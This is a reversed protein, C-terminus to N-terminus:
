RVRYPSKTKEMGTHREVRVDVMSATKNLWDKVVYELGDIEVISDIRPMWESLSVTITLMKVLSRGEFGGENAFERNVIGTVATAVDEPTTFTLPEGLTELWARGAAVHFTEDFFSAM